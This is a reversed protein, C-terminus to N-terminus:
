SRKVFEDLEARSYLLTGGVRHGKLGLRDLKRTSCRLHEAAQVRTCWEEGGSRLLPALQNAVSLAVKEVLEDTNLIM